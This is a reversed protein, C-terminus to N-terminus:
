GAMHKSSVQALHERKVGYDRMLRLAWGVYLDVFLSRSAGAEATDDPLNAKKKENAIAAMVEDAADVDIAGAFVAFMFAWSGVSLVAGGSLAQGSTCGRALRAGFASILGRAFALM